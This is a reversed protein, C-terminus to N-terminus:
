ARALIYCTSYAAVFANMEDKPALRAASTLSSPM